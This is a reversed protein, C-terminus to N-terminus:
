MDHPAGRQSAPKDLQQASKAYVLVRTHECVWVSETHDGELHKKENNDDKKGAFGASFDGLGASLHAFGPVQAGLSASLLFIECSVCGGKVGLCPGSYLPLTGSALGYYM